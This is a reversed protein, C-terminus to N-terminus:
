QKVVEEQMIGKRVGKRSRLSAAIIWDYNGNYKENIEEWEMNPEEKMLKDAKVRDRMLDRAQTRFVNRVVSCVMAEEQWSKGAARYMELARRIPPNKGPYGNGGEYWDRTELNSLSYNEIGKSAEVGMPEAIAQAEALKPALRPRMYLTRGRAAASSLLSLIAGKALAGGSAKEAQDFVDRYKDYLSQAILDNFYQQGFSQTGSEVAEFFARGLVKMFPATAGFRFRNAIGWVPVIESAGVLAAMGAAIRATEEDAGHRLAEQYTNWGSVAAGTMGITSTELATVIRGGAGVARAAGGVAGSVVMLATAQGLGSALSSSFYEDQRRDTTSRGLYAGGEAIGKFYEGSANMGVADLALGLGGAADTFTGGVGGVFRSAKDFFYEGAGPQVALWREAAMRNEPRYRYDAAAFDINKAQQSRRFIANDMTENIIQDTKGLEQIIKPILNQPTVMSDAWAQLRAKHRLNMRQLHLFAGNMELGTVYVGNPDTFQPTKAAEEIVAMMRQEREPITMGDPSLETELLGAKGELTIPRGRRVEVQRFRYRSLGGLRPEERDRVFSPPEDVSLDGGRLTELKLLAYRSLMKQDAEQPDDLLPAAGAPEQYIREEERLNAKRTLLMEAVPQEQPANQSGVRIYDPADAEVDRTTTPLAKGNGAVPMGLVKKVREEITAMDVIDSVYEGLWWAENATPNGQLSVPIGGSRERGEVTAEETKM